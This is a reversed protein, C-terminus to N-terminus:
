KRTKGDDDDDKKKENKKEEDKPMSAKQQKQYHKQQQRRQRSEKDMGVFGMMNQKVGEAADTIDAAMMGFIMSPLRSGYDTMARVLHMMIVLQILFNIQIPIGLFGYQHVGQQAYALRQSMSDGPAYGFPLYFNFVCLFDIKESLKILGVCKGCIDYNLVNYTAANSLYNMLSLASFAFVPQMSTQLLVKMWNDFLMKTRRFCICVIFLPAVSILLAVMIVSVLYIMVAQMVAELYMWVAMCIITLTIIGMPGAFLLSMMQLWTEYQFFRNLSVDLFAFAKSTQEYETVQTKNGNVDTKTIQKSQWGSEGQGSMATILYDSGDIFFTFFHNYFFQWSGDSTVMVILGIKVSMILFDGFTARAVGFLFFAGYLSIYLALIAHTIDIFHYDHAVDYVLKVAGITDSARDVNNTGGYLISRINDVLGRLINSFIPLIKKPIRTKVIFEGENNDYGDGNDKVGFYVVANKSGHLTFTTYDSDIPMPINITGPGGPAVAISESSNTAYAYFSGLNKADCHRTMVVNYSGTYDHRFYDDDTNGRGLLLGVYGDHDIKHFYSDGSEVGSAAVKGNNDKVSIEHFNQLANNFKNILLEESYHKDSDFIHDFHAEETNSFNEYIKGTKSDYKFLAVHLGDIFTQMYGDPNKKFAANDGLKPDMYQIETRNCTDGGVLGNTTDHPNRLGCIKRCYTNLNYTDSKLLSNLTKDALGPNIEYDELMKKEAKQCYFMDQSVNKTFSHLTGNYWYPNYKYEKNKKKPDPARLVNIGDNTIRSSIKRGVCSSCVQYDDFQVNGKVDSVNSCNLKSQGNEKANNCDKIADINVLKDDKISDCYSQYLMFEQKQLGLTVTDGKQVLLMNSIDLDIPKGANLTVLKTKGKGGCLNINNNTVSITREGNKDLVIPTRMWKTAQKYSIVGDPKAKVHVVVKKSTIDAADICESNSCGCLGFILLVICLKIININIDLM